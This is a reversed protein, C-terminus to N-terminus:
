SAILGLRLIEKTPAVYAFFEGLGTVPDPTVQLFNHIEDTLTGKTSVPIREIIGSPELRFTLENTTDRNNIILLVMQMGFELLFDRFIETTTFSVPIKVTRIKITQDAFLVQGSNYLSSM